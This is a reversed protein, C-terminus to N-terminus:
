VLVDALRLPVAVLTPFRLVLACLSGWQRLRPGMFLLSWFILGSTASYNSKKETLQSVWLGRALYFVKRDFIELTLHLLDLLVAFLAVDDANNLDLFANTGIATGCMSCYTARGLVWDM